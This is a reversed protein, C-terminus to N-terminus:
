LPSGEGERGRQGREERGRQLFFPNHILKLKFSIFKM